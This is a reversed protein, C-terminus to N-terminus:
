WLYTPGLSAIAMSVVWVLTWFVLYKTQQNTEPNCSDSLIHTTKM